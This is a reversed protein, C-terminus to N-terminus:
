NLFEPDPWKEIGQAKGCDLCINLEIYDGGGINLDYPVYDNNFTNKFKLSCKDDCKASIGLIRKSGCKDCKVCM